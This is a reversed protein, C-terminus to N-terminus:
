ICEKTVFSLNKEKLIVGLTINKQDIGTAARDLAHTQTGERAPIAPEFGAPLMSTQQTTHQSNSTDAVPRVRIRLLRVSHPMDSHSRSVEVILRAISDNVKLRRILDWRGNAPM